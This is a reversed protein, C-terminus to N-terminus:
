VLDVPEHGVEVQRGRVPQPREIGGRGARDACGAAWGGRRPSVGVMAGVARSGRLGPGATWNAAGSGANVPRGRRRTPGAIQPEASSMIKVPSSAFLADIARAALTAASDGSVMEAADLRTLGAAPRQTSDTAKLRDASV